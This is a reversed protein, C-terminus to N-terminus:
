INPPAGFPIAGGGTTLMSLATEIQFRFNQFYVWMKWFCGNDIYGGPRELGPLQDSKWGLRHLPNPALASSLGATSFIKVALPRGGM